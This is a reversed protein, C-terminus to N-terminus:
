GSERLVPQRALSSLNPISLSSVHSPIPTTSSDSLFSVSVLGLSLLRMYHFSFLLM